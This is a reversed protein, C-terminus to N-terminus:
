SLMKKEMQRMQAIDKASHDDFGALHLIGHIVYLILEKETSTKYRKANAYAVQPCIIIESLGEGLDFALVDTLYDHRLYRKNLHRMRQPGVFVISLCCDRKKRLKRLTTDVVKLVRARPLPIKKQLNKLIIEM